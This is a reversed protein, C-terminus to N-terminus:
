CDAPNDRLDFVIGKVKGHDKSEFENIAKEVGDGTNEQFHHRSYLWLRGAADEVQGVSDQDRRARADGHVARARQQSAVDASRAARPVACRKVADTLV